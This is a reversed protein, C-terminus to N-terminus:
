STPAGRLRSVMATRSPDAHRELIELAIEMWPDEAEGALRVVDDPGPGPRQGEIAEREGIWVDPELGDGPLRAQAAKLYASSIKLTLDVTEFHHLKQVINKGFTRDGILLARDNWALAAALLEASSGTAGDVLVVVPMRTWGRGTAEVRERLGPVPRDNRDLAELLVGERLFLDAIAAAALMSGGSNGRLDLVLRRIHYQRFLEQMRDSVQDRTNKSLHFIRVIGISDRGLDATVTPRVFKHRLITFSLPGDRDVEVEVPTAEEGQLLAYLVLGGMSHAVVVM